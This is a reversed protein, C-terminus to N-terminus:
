ATNVEAVRNGASSVDYGLSELERRSAHSVLVDLLRAVRADNMLPQPIVLDYREEALPVFRLGLALAADRTAVGADAAGM